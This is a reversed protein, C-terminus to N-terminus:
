TQQPQLVGPVRLRCRPGVAEQGPQSSGPGLDAWGPHQHDCSVQPRVACVEACESIFVFVYM